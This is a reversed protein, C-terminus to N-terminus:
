REWLGLVLATSNGDYSLANVLVYAGQFPQRESSIRLGTGSVAGATPPVHQTLLADAGAMGCFIGSAGLAEGFLSKPASMPVQELGAGFVQRFAGREAEDIGRIGSASSIIAGVQTAAIGAADLAQCIALANSAADPAEAQSEGFGLVELHPSIGRAMASAATELMWLGAGEGPITGDSQPDFPRVGTGLFGMHRMAQSIESGYAECGGALLRKARGFQLFEQAQGVAHLSSSFGQCVTSNPGALRYKIAAQGGPSSIVTNPFELPSVMSPGESIATWDFAIISQASSFMSGYFLGPQESDPTDSSVTWKADELALHSAVCLMRAARDLYRYGKPGLWTEPKFEAIAANPAEGGRVASKGAALAAAFGAGAGLGSIM